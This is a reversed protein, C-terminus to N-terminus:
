EHTVKQGSVWILLTTCGSDILAWGYDLEAKWDYSGDTCRFPSRYGYPSPLTFSGPVVPGASTRGTSFTVAASGGTM